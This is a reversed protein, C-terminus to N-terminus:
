AVGEHSQHVIEVFGSREGDPRSRERTYSFTRLAAGLTHTGFVEDAVELLCRNPQAHQVRTRIAIATEAAPHGAQVSAVLALAPSRSLGATCQILLRDPKRTLLKAFTEIHGHHPLVRGRTNLTQEEIDDMILHLHLRGEIDEMPWRPSWVSVIADPDYSAVANSLAEISCFAVRGGGISSAGGRQPSLDAFMGSM